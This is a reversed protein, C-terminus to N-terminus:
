IGIVAVAKPTLFNIVLPMLSAVDGAAIPDEGYDTANWDLLLCSLFQKNLKIIVFITIFVHWSLCTM